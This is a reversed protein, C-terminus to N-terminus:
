PQYFPKIPTSSEKLLFEPVYASAFAKIPEFNGHATNYITAALPNRMQWEPDAVLRRQTEWAQPISQQGSLVNINMDYGARLGFPDTAGYERTNMDASNYDKYGQYAMLGTGAVGLYPSVKAMANGVFPIINKAMQANVSVKPVGILEVTRDANVRGALRANNAMQSSVFAETEPQSSLSAGLDKGVVRLYDKGKNRKMAESVSIQEPYEPINGNFPTRDAISFGSLREDAIVRVPFGGEHRANWQDLYFSTNKASNPLGQQSYFRGEARAALKQREFNSKAWEHEGKFNEPRALVKDRAAALADVEEKFSSKIMPSTFRQTQNLEGRIGINKLGVNNRDWFNTFQPSEIFASAEWPTDFKYRGFYEIPKVAGTLDAVSKSVPVYATVGSTADKAQQNLADMFMPNYTSM